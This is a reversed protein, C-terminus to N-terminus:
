LSWLFGKKKETPVKVVIDHCKICRGAPPHPIQSTPLLPPGLKKVKSLEELVAGVPTKFQTGPGPGGLFLHCNLCTGVFPHPMPAGKKIRPIHRITMLKFKPEPSIAAFISAIISAEAPGALRGVLQGEVVRTSMHPALGFYTNGYTNWLMGMGFVAVLAVM